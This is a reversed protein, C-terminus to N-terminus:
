KGKILDVIEDHNKEVRRELKNIEDRLRGMERVANCEQVYIKEDVYKKVDKEIGNIQSAIIFSSMLLTIIISVVGVISFKNGNVIDAIKKM